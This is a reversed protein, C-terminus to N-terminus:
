FIFPIISKTKQVYQIYDPYQSKLLKEEVVIRIVAVSTGILGIIVNMISLHGFISSWIFLLAAAYMPHRIIKYPGTRLLTGEKPEAHVSFQGKQFSVRAWINLVVALLQGVIILPLTTFVNGSIFLYLIILITILLGFKSILKVM